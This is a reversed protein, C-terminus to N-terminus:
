LAIVFVDSIVSYLSKFHLSLFMHYLVMCLSLTCQCFCRTYCQVSVHLSLFMHYLVMCQYLSKFHMPLFMQYLVTCLCAIVFVHSIVGYLSKFHLSLFRIIYSLQLSLASSHDANPSANTNISTKKGWKMMKSIYCNYHSHQCVTLMLHHM